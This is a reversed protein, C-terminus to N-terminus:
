GGWCSSRECTNKDRCEGKPCPSRPNGTEPNIDLSALYEELRSFRQLGYAIENQAYPPLTTGIRYLIGPYGNAISTKPHRFLYRVCDLAIDIADPNITDKPLSRCRKHVEYYKLLAANSFPNPSRKRKTSPPRNASNNKLVSKVENSAKSIDSM